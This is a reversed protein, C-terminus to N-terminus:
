LRELMVASEDCNPFKVCGVCEGWIKQPLTEKDVLIFGMKEFFGPRYTLAFLSKLGLSRAEERCAEVLRTGYGRGTCADVVALSRIEGLKDSSVHLACIGVVRGQETCVFFERIGTCIDSLPRPLMLGEAAFSEIIAQISGADALTAKRVPAERM